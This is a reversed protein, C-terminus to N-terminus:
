SDPDVIVAFMNVLSTALRFIVRTKTLTIDMVKMVDDVWEGEYVDGNAFEPAGVEAITMNGNGQTSHSPNGNWTM